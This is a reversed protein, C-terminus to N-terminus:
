WSCRCYYCCYCSTVKTLGEHVGTLLLTAVTVHHVVAPPCRYNRIELLTRMDAEVLVPLRSQVRHPSLLAHAKRCMVSMEGAYGHREVETLAHRTAEMDKAEIATVLAVLM